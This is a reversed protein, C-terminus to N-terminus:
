RNSGFEPYALVGVEASDLGMAEEEPTARLGVVAALILWVILSAFFALGGISVVGIFQVYYTPADAAGFYSYPVIMTGWIGACLHVPIAGVVDDIRIKDLLPVFIVVILGGIGGIVCAIAVSPMLPEATISVLGALAGNMVMTVDVKRYFIQTLFITVLAGACAAANTNVFIKAVSSADEITGLALQSGGNFGFWGLWLIFTGLTALPISSGPMPHIVGNAGFKGARAGVVLAGALAAWGGVSHVLTSGAFDSFGMQDLWGAGWEWSGTVPYLVGTLFVCFILFPWLRMREAVTGSVISCTTACFVMQFFWDSYASYDGTDEAPLPFAKVSFTGMYNALAQINNATDVGEYMVNYGILWFMIGAIAYLSINKLCQMAVNKSRVLGAELMAFGAAMFMVLFGAMLFLLTNFIYATDAASAPAVTPEAPADLSAATPERPSGEEGDTPIAESVAEVADSVADQAQEVVTPETTTETSPTTEAQALLIPAREDVSAPATDAFAWVTTASLALALGAGALKLLM